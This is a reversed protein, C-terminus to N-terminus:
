AKPAKLKPLHLLEIQLQIYCSQACLSRDVQSDSAVLLHNVLFDLSHAFDSLYDQKITKMM